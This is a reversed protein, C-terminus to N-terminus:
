SEALEVAEVNTSGCDLCRHCVGNGHRGQRLQLNELRNDARDGNIHHVTEDSRLPRGIAEAMVLRHELVYRGNCLGSAMQEALPGSRAVLRLVYGGKTSRGGKYSRVNERRKVGRRSLLSYVANPWVGYKAAVQKGSLGAAYDAVM